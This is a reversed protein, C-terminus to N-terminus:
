PLYVKLSAQIPVRCIACKDVSLACDVCVCTHACPLFCISIQYALCIICLNKDEKKEEESNNEKRKAEIDQELKMSEIISVYQPLRRKM